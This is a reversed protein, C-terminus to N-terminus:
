FPTGCWPAPVASFLTDAQALAGARLERVRGARALTSFSVGGLYAAGLEVVGLALDADATTAHCTAGDPGAELAFRGASQPRFADEVEFVLRGPAVYGRVALAAPIDLLRVWLDDKLTTVRLRRPDALLWRLPEDVPRDMVRFTQVLDVNLAYEWLAAQAEPTLGFLASLLLTGSSIGEEWRAQIRYFMAAEVERSLSEAVVYFRPGDSTAEPQHLFEAWRKEDRNLAGVQTVRVREYLAPLVTLAEEHSILRV